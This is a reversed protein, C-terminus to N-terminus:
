YTQIKRNKFTTCLWNNIWFADVAFSNRCVRLIYFVLSLELKWCMKYMKKHTTKIPNSKLEKKKNMEIWLSQVTFSLHHTKNWRFFDFILMIFNFKISCISQNEITLFLLENKAFSYLIIDMFDVFKEIFKIKFSICTYMICITISEIRKISINKWTTATGLFLMFFISICFSSCPFNKRYLKTLWGWWTWFNSFHKELWVIASHNGQLIIYLLGSLYLTVVASFLSAHFFLVFFFCLFFSRTTCKLYESTTSMPWLITVKHGNGASVILPFINYM